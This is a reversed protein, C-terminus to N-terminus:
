GDQEGSASLLEAEVQLRFYLVRSAATTEQQRQEMITAAMIQDSGHLRRLYRALQLERQADPGKIVGQVEATLGGEQRNEEGTRARIALLSVGPPLLEQTQTLLLLLQERRAATAIEDQHRSIATALGALYEEDYRNAALDRRQQELSSYEVRLDRIEAQQWTYIGALGLALVIFAGVIARNALHALKQKEKDPYTLLFNQSQRRDCFALGVAPALLQREYQGAPPAASSPGVGEDNAFPDLWQCGIGLEEEIKNLLSQDLRVPSTLYVKEPRPQGLNIRCYDFTREVQRVLRTLAQLDFSALPQQQGLPDPGLDHWRAASPEGIGAAAEDEPEEPISLGQSASEAEPSASPQEEWDLDLVTTQGADSASTLPRETPREPPECPEGAELITHLCTKIDRSFGPEGNQFLTIFSNNEELQLHSFAKERGPLRGHHYLNGAATVPATIGTLPFSVGRFLQRLREVVLRPALFVVAELKGDHEPSPRLIFDLTLTKPDYGEINKRAAWFVANAAEAPAVRPITLLHVELHRWPLETWIEPNWGAGSRGARIETLARRLTTKLAPAALWTDEHDAGAGEEQEVPHVHHERLLQRGHHRSVVAIEVSGPRLSVGVTTNSRRRLWSPMTVMRESWGSRGPRRIAPFQFLGRVTGPAAPDVSTKEPGSWSPNSAPVAGAASRRQRTAERDPDDGSRILDLLKDTASLEKHRDM